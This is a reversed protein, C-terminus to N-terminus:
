PSADAAPEARAHTVNPWEAEGTAEDTLPANSKSVDPTEVKRSITHCAKSSHTGVHSLFKAGLKRMALQFVVLCLGIISLTKPRTEWQSLSATFGILAVKIAVLVLGSYNKGGQMVCREQSEVFGLHLFSMVELCFFIIALSGCFLHAPPGVDYEELGDSALRREQKDDSLVLFFTFAAGLIVLALSYVYQFWNWVVGASKSRRLAHTDADHPQSQFHLMQLFVVTLIGCFFVTYFSNGENSVDVILLSFVSEGLMLMIWEGIRHIFFGVNMPVSSGHFSLVFHLLAALTLSCLLEHVAVAVDADAGSV